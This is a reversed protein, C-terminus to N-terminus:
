EDSEGRAEGPLPIEFRIETGLNPTSQIVLQGGLSEVRDKMTTTGLGRKAYHEQFGVGNDKISFQITSLSCLLELTVTKARSHKLANQLAEDVVRLITQTEWPPLAIRRECHNILKVQMLSQWKLPEIHEKLRSLLDRQDVPRLAKILDRMEQQSQALLEQLRDLRDQVQNSPTNENVMLSAAKAILSASFLRQSVADHLDAALKRRERWKASNISQQYLRANHLSASLYLAFASLLDEDSEGFAGALHSELRVVYHTELVPHSLCSRASELLLRESVPLLPSPEDTDYTYESPTEENSQIAAAVLERPGDVADSVQFVGCAPYELARVFREVATPLIADTEEFNTLGAAMNVLARLQNAKRREGSLLASRDLAVAVYNGITELLALFGATFSQRGSAAVNLIGLPRGKSRLPISAHFVLGKKDGCADRLRSCRVINVATDLKGNVFEDQCECWGTKLPKADDVQLAPPLGSAGVEVFSKRVSDYRFAWATTLGLFESLKPLIGEMASTTDTAQNLAVAIDRFLELQRQNSFSPSRPIDAM